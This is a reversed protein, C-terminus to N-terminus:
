PGVEYSTWPLEHPAGAKLVGAFEFLGVYAALALFAVWLLLTPTLTFHTWRM